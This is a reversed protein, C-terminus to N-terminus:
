GVVLHLLPLTLAALVLGAGVVFAALEDDLEAETAMIGALVMPPMGAQLVSAQWAAEDLGGALAGAALVAVPMLVMKVGLDIGALHWAGQASPLRFRLGIAVMAVPGVLRGLDALVDTVGDPLPWQRLLVTALLALFAPFTLLTRVVGALTADGQGFRSCIITGVVTVGVFNGLQDYAVASAVAGAGVLAEVAALGLYSTNGFSAMMLVSGLTRRDWAQRRGVVLTASWALLLAGWAAAVPVVVTSGLEAGPLKALILAPLLVWLVVRDLPTAWGRVSPALRALVVGVAFCAVIVGLV